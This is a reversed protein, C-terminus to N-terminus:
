RRARLHAALAPGIQAVVDSNTLQAHTAAVPHEVIAGTLYPRWLQADFLETPGRTASFYLLDGDFVGPRYRHSLRVGDVYGRHLRTLQAASLGTGFSPAADSLEVAAQEATVDELLDADDPEDGLLHTLLDRMRPVPPPPLEDTFVLSDLMVLTEVQAGLHCLRVAIAHAIQGGLSWGLLHYPGNPQIRRIQEIYRDALDGIDGPTEVPEADDLLPSQLGIVPRDRIHAALGAYCWALPVASHVCFLPARIGNRRLMLVPGLGDDGDPVPAALRDALEGVTSASYLWRVTVPQGTANAIEAAVAVGSLSNGGLEFFDDDVGVRDAGTATAFSAAVLRQAETEPARFSHSVAPPPPLAARDVKGHRTVPLAPLRVLQAPVMAAPLRDRLRRILDHFVISDDEDASTEADTVVYGILREGQPARDIAVVAQAIRPLETLASEIEAPEIRRGRLSLQTDVRGLFEAVGAPDIRVRDGTRYCRRGPAEPDAVFCTATAAPDGRYGAAVGAGGVYLEGIGGPPVPRLREDLVRARVGPLMPGIPVAASVPRTPVEFQAAMVTTETPGYGNFLRVASCWRRALDVPCVEGGVVVVRLEPLSQPRLTALVAPTTLFHTIANAALFDSLETGAVVTRPEIVLRAGAASAALLELLHADFSPAHAHLVRSHAQVAYTESIHDTLAELGRHTVAVAKPRGTTGSTHIVYATHDARLPRVRDADSVPTAPRASVRALLDPDDLGLWRPGDPLRDWMGAVTLGLRAGSNAVVAALRAPPDSPDVPVFAAGTAAVAGIALVSEASRPVAVVVSDGPGAGYEILERAWRACWGNWAQCTWWREGDVVAVGDPHGAYRLLEPLLRVSHPAPDVADGPAAHSAAAGRAAGIATEGEPATRSATGDCPRVPIGRVGRVDSRDDSNPASPRDRADPLPTTGAARGSGPKSGGKLDGKPAADVIAGSGLHAVRDDTAAGLFEDFYLLFREHHWVVAARSYLAPNAQIDISATRDDAGLQYGNILLDEVPGLALLVARGTLPGLRLPEVFGLVNVVPGFGGRAVRNEGRDRQMDEYRYRQHRLAGILRVRVRDILEGVTIEGFGSLRLPVVNSVSGASNRLAATPRVAMPVAVVLDDRHTMAALYAAFAAITLETFSAGTRERVAVLREATPEPLQGGVRHPHPAPPAATGSLGASPPLGALQERWYAADARARDSDRYAAEDAVLEAISLPARRAPRISGFGTTESYIEATRHLVAAAGVGDLAIHHSRLYLLHRDTGIRYLTAVTLRDALLDLPAGHDAAMRSRAAGAPDAAGSLDVVAMPAFADPDLFQRPGGARIRFRVLPSQLEAAAALAAARLPGVQLPGRLDLYMAVTNPLDPYLQQAVWWRLQAESLPFDPLGGIDPTAADDGVRTM